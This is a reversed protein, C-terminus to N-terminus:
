TLLLIYDVLGVAIRSPQARLCPKCSCLDAILLRIFKDRSVNSTFGESLPPYWIEEIGQDKSFQEQEGQERNFLKVQERCKKDFNETIASIDM